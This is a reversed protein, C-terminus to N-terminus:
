NSPKSSNGSRDDSAPNPCFILLHDGKCRFCAIKRKCSSAKHNRRLCHLCRGTVQKQRAEVTNYKRCDRSAHGKLNCFLCARKAQKSPPAGANGAHKRKRSSQSRVETRVQLAETTSSGPVATYKPSPVVTDASKEMATIIKDLNNRIAMLDTAEGILHHEHIVKEPFKSLVLARLHNGGVPEGLKELVRINREVSDLVSRCSASTYDAKQLNNLATYHADILTDTSGYRRKLTEVAISYDWFECWKLKDGSFSPLSLEPLKSKKVTESRRKGIQLAIELETLLDEAKLQDQTMEVVDAEPEVSLYQFLEKEFTGLCQKLKLHIATFEEESVAGEAQLQEWLAQSDATVKQLKEHRLKVRSYLSAMTVPIVFSTEFQGPINGVEKHLTSCAQRHAESVCEPFGRAEWDLTSIPSCRLSVVNVLSRQNVGQEVGMYSPLSENSRSPAGHVSETCGAGDLVEHVYRWRKELPAM